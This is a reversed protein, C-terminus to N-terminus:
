KIIKKYIMIYNHDNKKLTKFGSKKYLNKGIINSADVSLYINEDAQKILDNVIFTGYGKGRHKKSTIIGLWLKGEYDLHGYGAIDKDIYYLANYKHQLAINYSRKDYYRFNSEKNGEIFSKLDSLNERNIKKIKM